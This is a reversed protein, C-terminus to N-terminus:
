ETKNEIGNAPAQAQDKYIVWVAAACGISFVMAVGAAPLNEPSPEQAQLALGCATLFGFFFGGTIAAVTLAQVFLPMPTARKARSLQRFFAVVSLPLAILGYCFLYEDGPDPADFMIIIGGLVIFAHLFSFLLLTVAILKEM